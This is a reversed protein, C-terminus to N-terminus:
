EWAPGSMLRRQLVRQYHSLLMKHWGCAKSAAVKARDSRRLPTEPDMLSASPPDGQRWWPTKQGPAVVWLEGEKRRIESQEWRYWLSLRKLLATDM